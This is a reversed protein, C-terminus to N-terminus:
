KEVRRRQMLVFYLVLGAAMAALSIWQNSTFPGLVPIGARFGEVMFRGAGYALLYLASVQGDFRKRSLLASLLFFLGIDWAAEYLQAPHVRHIEGPFQVAWPLDCVKGGCCGNLFCGIRGFGQALAGYPFVFDMGAWFPIGRKRFIYAFGLIGTVLGGYFILGGEWLVFVKFPQAAYTHWEQIVYYIRSGLLGAFTGMMVIDPVDEPAPFGDRQARRAMLFICLLLGAAIMLGFSHIQFPGLSGLVPIM